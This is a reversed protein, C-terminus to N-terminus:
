SNAAQACDGSAAAPCSACVSEAPKPDAKPGDVSKKKSNDTVYFGSGKFILGMGSNILRRIEKGCQPCVRLPDDKMSQSVEFTHGCSKCGYEYIPM